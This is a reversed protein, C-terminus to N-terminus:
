GSTSTTGYLTNFWDSTRGYDVIQNQYGLYQNFLAEKRKTLSTNIRAINKDYTKTQEDISTMTSTLLGKTGTYNSLQINLAGLGADLLATVDSASNKMAESFKTSDVVLNMSKDFSLGIESFNKFNGTNTINRNMGNILERRLTILGMDGSVPGRTYTTKGDSGVSTTSGLKNKLHTVTANFKSVLTNMLGSAKDNSSTISLNATKGEADSAFNITAGDVVDTLNTSGSRTVLMGNVKFTTNKAAQLETTFGLGASDTYVMSHNVGTQVGALVIQNAVISAKFDRGEPQSAANIATVISRLTDTASISISTGAATYGLSTSGVTGTSSLTLSLGRGSDYSGSTMNQWEATFGSSSGNRISVAAGDANVMRFQRVGSVDRTELQYTGSGLERQGTVVSGSAEAGTVSTDPTYTVPREAASAGTGGLWFTGSKGLAVEANTVNLSTVKSQAKALVIDTFNYDAAVASSSTNSVTLVSAGSTGPTVSSKTSQTVGYSAQSSILAQLASQLGDFNAKMDTYISKRIVIADKQAQAKNLPESEATLTAKISTQFTVALGAIKTDIPSLTSAM